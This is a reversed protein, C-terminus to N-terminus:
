GKAILYEHAAKLFMNKNAVVLAILIVRAAAAGRATRNFKHIIQFFADVVAAQFAFHADVFGPAEIGTGMSGGQDNIGVVDPVGWFGFFIHFLDQGLVDM